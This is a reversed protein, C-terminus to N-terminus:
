ISFSFHGLCLFGGGWVVSEKYSLYKDGIIGGPICAIYVLATYWGYLYIADQNSWEFGPNKDNEDSILYLVLIARM